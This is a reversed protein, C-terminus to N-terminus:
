LEPKRIVWKFDKGNQKIYDGSYHIDFWINDSYNRHHLHLPLGNEPDVPELVALGNWRVAKVKYIKGESIVASYGKEALAQARKIDDTM